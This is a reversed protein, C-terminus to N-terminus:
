SDPALLAAGRSGLAGDAYMKVSRVTLRGGLGILPKGAFWANELADNDSIMMYIRIPLEGADILERVCAITDGEAGADHMETLGNAAINKAAALVRAKRLEHSPPPIKEEILDQAADVFVGTPNGAADRIIRGGEPDRTAATIGAAHMAMSNAVGAHGDVRKMWVFHDPIVADFLAAM